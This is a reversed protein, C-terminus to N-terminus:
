KLMPELVPWMADYWVQYGDGNPHLGDPMLDKRLVGKADTFKPGLDLYTVIKGDHFKRIQANVADLKIRVPDDKTAGCPFIGLLLIRAKPVKAHVVTLIEKIGNAVWEPKEDHFHGLNNTGILIVVAKPAIGDLEGNSVRWLLDETREASIGFNAPQYPAFKEWTEKHRHPWLDTISDGLFLLGVPGSAIRRLFQDHRVQNRNNPTSASQPTRADAASLSAAGGWALAMLVAPISRRISCLM